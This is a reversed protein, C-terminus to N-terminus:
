FRYKVNASVFRMSLPRLYLHLAWMAEVSEARMKRIIQQKKEVANSTSKITMPYVTIDKQNGISSLHEKGVISEHNLM